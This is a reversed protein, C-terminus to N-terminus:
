SGQFLEWRNRRGFVEIVGECKRKDYRKWSIHILSLNEDTVSYLNPVYEFIYRYAAEKEEPLIGGEGSCIATQAIASGKALAIKTEKSLAGFSMHSIYVPSNLVMPKKARKGIVTELSVPENEDLPATALQAGLLVFIHILSLREGTRRM